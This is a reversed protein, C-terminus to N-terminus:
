IQLLFKCIKTPISLRGKQLLKPNFLIFNPFEEQVQLFHTLLKNTLEHEHNYPLSVNLNTTLALLEDSSLKDTIPQSSRPVAFRLVAFQPRPFFM